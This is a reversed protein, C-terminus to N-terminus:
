AAAAQRGARALARRAEALGRRGVERTHEDIRWEDSDRLASRAGARATRRAPPRGAWVAPQQEGTRRSPAVPSGILNDLRLILQEAM